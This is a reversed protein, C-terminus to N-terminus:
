LIISTRWHHMEYTVESKKESIIMSELPVSGNVDEWIQEKEMLFTGATLHNM